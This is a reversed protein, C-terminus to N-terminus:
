SRTFSQENDHPHALPRAGLENGKLDLVQWDDAHHEWSEDNHSVTTYFCWSGDSIQVTKVYNVQAYDLSTNFTDVNIDSALVSSTFLGLALLIKM